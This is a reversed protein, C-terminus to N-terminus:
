RKGVMFMSNGVIGEKKVIGSIIRYGKANMELSYKELAEAKEGNGWHSWLESIMSQFSFIKPCADISAPKSKRIINKSSESPFYSNTSNNSIPVCECNYPFYSIGMARYSLM